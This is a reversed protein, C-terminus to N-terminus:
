GAGDVITTVEKTVTIRRASGLVETGVQDLKMGLDESVVQEGTLTAIDQLMAKRRDGFGPAKVAVANLTGRLKHVLLASLAEGDVDESISCLPKEDQLVQQSLPLSPQVNFIKPPTLPSYPDELLAEQREADTVMYPSLYSKEFEMGETIELETETTSS